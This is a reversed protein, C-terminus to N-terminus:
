PKPRELDILTLNEAAATERGTPLFGCHAYLRRLAPEQAITSLRWVAAPYMGFLLAMAATGIGQGQLEPLVFVPSIRCVPVGNEPECRVVRVGGAEAGDRLILYWESHPDRLQAAVKSLPEKAPSTSDDRYKEWLPLFARVMMAHLLEAQEPVARKITINERMQSFIM